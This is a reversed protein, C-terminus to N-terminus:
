SGSIPEESDSYIKNKDTKLVLLRLKNIKNAADQGQPTLVMRLSKHDNDAAYSIFGFEMLEQIRMFKTKENGSELRMIDTKTCMPNKEIALLVYMAYKKEFIELDDQRLSMTHIDGSLM